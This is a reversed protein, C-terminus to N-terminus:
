ADKQRQESPGQWLHRVYAGIGVLLLLMVESRLLSDVLTFSGIEAPVLVVRLPLVTFLAGFVLFLTTDVSMVDAWVLHALVIALLLPVLAIALTLLKSTLSRSVQISTFYLVSTGVPVQLLNVSTDYDTMTSDQSIALAAPVESSLTGADSYTIPDPLTMTLVSSLAYSDQPFSGVLGNIPLSFSGIQGYLGPHASPDPVTYLMGLPQSVVVVPQGEVVISIRIPLDRYAAAQVLDAMPISQNSQRDVFKAIVPAPIDIYIVGNVRRDALSLQNVHFSILAETSSAPVTYEVTQGDVREVPVFSGKTSAGASGADRLTALVTIAASGWVAISLALAAVAVIGAPVLYRARRTRVGLRRRRRKTPLSPRRSRHKSTGAGADRLTQDASHDDSM